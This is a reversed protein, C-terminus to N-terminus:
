INAIPTPGLKPFVDNVLSARIADYTGPKWASARHKLWARSVAEVSNLAAAQRAGDRGTVM